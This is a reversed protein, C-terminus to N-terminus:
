FPIVQIYSLQLDIITEMQNKMSLPNADLVENNGNM